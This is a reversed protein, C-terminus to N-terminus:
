HSTEKMPGRCKIPICNPSSWLAFLMMMLVWTRNLSILSRRSMNIIARYEVIYVRHPPDIYITLLDVLICRHYGYSFWPLYPQLMHRMTSRSICCSKQQTCRIALLQLVHFVFSIVDVHRTLDRRRGGGRSQHIMGMDTCWTIPLLIPNPPPLPIVVCWNSHVEWGDLM